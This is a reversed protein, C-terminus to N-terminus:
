SQRHGWTGLLMAFANIAGFAAMAAAVIAFLAPLGLGFRVVALRAPGLM